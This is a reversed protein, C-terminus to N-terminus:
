DKSRKKEKWEQFKEDEDRVLNDLRNKLVIKLSESVNPVCIYSRLEVQTLTDILVALRVQVVAKEEPDKWIYRAIEREMQHVDAQAKEISGGFPKYSMTTAPDNMSIQPHRSPQVAIIDAAIDLQELPEDEEFWDEAVERPEAEEM